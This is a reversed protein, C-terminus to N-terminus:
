RDIVVASAQKWSLWMKTGASAVSKAYEAVLQTGSPTAVTVLWRSGLFLEKTVEVAIAPVEDAAVENTTRLILDEPRLLLSSQKDRNTDALSLPLHGLVTVASVAKDDLKKFSDIEIINAEGLFRAVFDSTPTHYLDAPAGYQLIEGRNMVAIKDSLIFAEEQDHTVYVATIGTKQQIDRLEAGLQQRLRRDLAGMPEDLLLLSPRYALARGIAVRQQQGGSLEGVARQSLHPLEILTLIESVRAEREPRTWHHLKLPYEINQAVTMHPFLAYNQFVFGINRAQVPLRTVDKGGISITGATPNILGAIMRLLTTKGSGSPGLLTCFAGPEIALSTSKLGVFGNPFRMEVAHVDIGNVGRSSSDTRAHATAIQRSTM